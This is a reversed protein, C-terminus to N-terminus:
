RLLLLLLVENAHASHGRVVLVCCCEVTDPEIARISRLAGRNGLRWARGILGTACVYILM